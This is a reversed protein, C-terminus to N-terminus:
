AANWLAEIETTTLTDINTQIVDWHGNNATTGTTNCIVMDGPECVQGAYTGATAVIYYWGKTHSAPLDTVTGGTGLTGKYVLAGAVDGMATQIADYVADGTVLGTNGNAVSGVNKAAATGLTPKNKIYDDATTTTQSWDSQVNVEAGAAINALKYADSGSMLGAIGAWTSGDALPVVVEALVVNDTGDNYMILIKHASQDYALWTGHFGGDGYLLYKQGGSPPAPVLGHTGVTRDTAGVFDNYTTGVPAAWSGDNRLFKTTDTGFSPGNTIKSASEDNIILKDGSAVTPASATIDGGNTINGHSHSSAARSTDTPHVHDGRAFLNSSGPSATGNMAPNSDYPSVGSPITPKDDLDDYSGSTAVPALQVVGSTTGAKTKNLQNETSDFSVDTVFASKILEMLRTIGLQDVYKAM